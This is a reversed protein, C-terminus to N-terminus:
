APVHTEVPRPMPAVAQTRHRDRSKEQEAQAVNKARKFSTVTWISLSTILQIESSMGAWESPCYKSCIKALPEAMIKKEEEDFSLEKQLAVFDTKLIISYVFCLIAVYADFVWAVQEPKFIEPIEQAASAIRKKENADSSLREAAPPLESDITEASPFAVDNIIEQNDTSGLDVNKRPRGRKRSSFKM